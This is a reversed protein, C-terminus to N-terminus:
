KMLRPSAWSKRNVQLTIDIKPGYFAGDGPNLKWKVGMNDLTEALDAEAKDWVAIDGMFKEPRTSLKLQYSFDFVSYVHKLFELCGVM